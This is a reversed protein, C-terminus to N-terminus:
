RKWCRLQQLTAPLGQFWGVLIDTILVWGTVYLYYLATCYWWLLM